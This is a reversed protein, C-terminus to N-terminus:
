SGDDPVCIDIVVNPMPAAGNSPICNNGGLVKAGNQPMYAPGSGSPDVWLQVAWPGTMALNQSALEFKGDGLSNIQQPNSGHQHVAMWACAWNLKASPMSQGSADEIAITWTNYDKHPPSHDAQDIRVKLQGTTDPTTLGIGEAGVAFPALNPNCPPTPPQADEYMVASPTEAKSACAACALALGMV